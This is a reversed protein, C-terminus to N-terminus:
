QPEGKQPSPTQEQSSIEHCKRELDIDNVYEIPAVSSAVKYTRWLLDANRGSKELLHDRISDPKFQALLRMAKRAEELVFNLYGLFQHKESDTWHSVDITEFNNSTLISPMDGIEYRDGPQGLLDAPSLLEASISKGAVVREVIRRVLSGIQADKEDVTCAPAAQEGRTEPVQALTPTKAGDSRRSSGAQSHSQSSMRSYAREIIVADADNIEAAKERIKALTKPAPLSIGTQSDSQRLYAQLTSRPIELYVALETTFKLNQRAMVEKLRVRLLQLAEKIQNDM